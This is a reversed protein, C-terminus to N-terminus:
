PDAVANVVHILRSIAILTVWVFLKNKEEKVLHTRLVRANGRSCIIGNYSTYLIHRINNYSFTEYDM